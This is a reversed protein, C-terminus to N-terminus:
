LTHLVFPAVYLHSGGRFQLWLKYTGPENVTAHLMMDPAVKATPALPPGEGDSMDAMGGDSSMSMHGMSMNNMADLSMPHTHVYTLDRADLFVAHAMAGLYPHLDRAPAGNKRVHAVLMTMDGKSLVLSNLSVTYPGVTVSRVNSGAQRSEPKASTGFPLDFRFVQQGYGQPEADAYIHYLAAHPVHLAIRFHGDSGLVPHAHVFTTFDDSVAILHMKKTMSTTYARLTQTSRLPAEWIDLQMVLPDAGPTAALMAHTKAKGEQLAFTGSQTLPPAAGVAASSLGLMALFAILIRV